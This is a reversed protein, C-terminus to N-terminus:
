ATDIEFDSIATPLPREDSWGPQKEVATRLDTAGCYAGLSVAEPKFM